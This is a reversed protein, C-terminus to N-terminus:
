RWARSSARAPQHRGAWEMAYDKRLEQIPSAADAFLPSSCLLTLIGFGALVALHRKTPAM